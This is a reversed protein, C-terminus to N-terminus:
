NENNNIEALLCIMQKLKEEIEIIDDLVELALAKKEELGEELLKQANSDLDEPDYIPDHLRENQYEVVDLKSFEDIKSDILILEKIESCLQFSIEVWHQLRDDKIYDKLKEQIQELNDELKEILRINLSSNEALYYEQLKGGPIDAQGFLSEHIEEQINVLNSYQLSIDSM